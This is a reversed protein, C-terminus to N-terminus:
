NTIPIQLHIMKYPKDGNYEKDKFDDTGNHFCDDCNTFRVRMRCNVVTGPPINKSVEFLIINGWDLEYANGSAPNAMTQGWTSKPNLKSYHAKDAGKIARIFCDKDNTKDLCSNEEIAVKTRFESQSIWKTASSDNHQIFCVPVFDGTKANPDTPLFTAPKSDIVACNGGLVGGESELPWPLEGFQCPRNLSTGDAHDWDNALIEIGGMVSNSNNYLNLAIAVVEGPSVKSNDNNFGLDSPTQASLTGIIGASQLQSIGSAILTKNDIVYASSAGSAPDLILNSKSILVSKKRNYPQTKTNTFGVGTLNRHENYSKFLLLGYSDLLSEINDKTYNFINCRNLTSNGITRLLNKAITQTFSRYTVPNNTSFWLSANTGNIHSSTDMNVKTPGGNETGTTTLDGLEALSETILTMVYERSAANTMSCKTEIDKTLAVLYHTIIMGSMHIDEIPETPYNPDYTIYQPYSLRGDDDTSIGPAHANDSESLPRSSNVQGAAWEGWHTRGNVYYSYYDSLGEGIAGAENYLNNSLQAKIGSTNRLNLQVKQMFHGAEHYIITSDHAWRLQKNSGTYGFCLSETAQDYYANEEIDCNSFILLKQSDFNLSGSAPDRLTTPVATDYFSINLASDLSLNLNAFFQNFIKDTHYFTNVQLFENSSAKFSWKGDSTQLASISDRSDRVEFCFELGYCNPNGMLFSNTTISVATGLLKNLDYNIPLNANNSLIIPNDKLVRGEGVRVSAPGSSANANVRSRINSGANPVCSALIGSVITLTLIKQILSNQVRNSNRM